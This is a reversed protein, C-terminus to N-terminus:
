APPDSDRRILEDAIQLARLQKARDRAFTPADLFQFFMERDQFELDNMVIFMLLEEVWLRLDEAIETIFPDRERRHVFAHRAEAALWLQRTRLARTRALFSGRKITAKSQDAQTGTLRELMSWLRFHVLGPDIQSLAEQYDQTAEYLLSGFVPGNMRAIMRGLLDRYKNIEQQVNVPWRDPYHNDESMVFETFRSWDSRYIVQHEVLRLRNQPTTPGSSFTQMRFNKCLNLCGLLASAAALGKDAAQQETRENVTIWVPVYTKEPHLRM